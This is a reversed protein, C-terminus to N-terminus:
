INKSAMIQQTISIEPCQIPIMQMNTVLTLTAIKRLRILIARNSKRGKRIAAAIRQNTTVVFAFGDSFGKKVIFELAVKAVANHLATKADQTKWPAKLARKWLLNPIRAQVEIAITGNIFYERAKRHAVVWLNWVRNQEIKAQLLTVQSTSVHVAVALPIPKPSLAATVQM